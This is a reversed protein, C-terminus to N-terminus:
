ECGPLDANSVAKTHNAATKIGCLLIDPEGKQFPRIRRKKMRRKRFAASAVRSVNARSSAALGHSEISFGSPYRSRIRVVDSEILLLQHQLPRTDFARDHTFPNDIINRRVRRSMLRRSGGRELKRQLGCCIPREPHFDQDPRILRALAKVPHAPCPGFGLSLRM